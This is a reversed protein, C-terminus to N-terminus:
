DKSKAVIVTVAAILLIGAAFVFLGEGGGHQVALICLTWVLFVELAFFQLRTKVKLAQVLKSLFGSPIHMPTRREERAPDGGHEIGIAQEPL